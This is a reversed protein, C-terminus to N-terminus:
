LHFLITSTFADLETGSESFFWYINIKLSEERKRVKLFHGGREWLVEAKEVM